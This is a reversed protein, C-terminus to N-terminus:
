KNKKNKRKSTTTTEEETVKETEVNQIEPELSLTSIGYMDINNVESAENTDAEVVNEPEKKTEETEQVTEETDEVSKPAISNAKVLYYQVQGAKVESNEFFNGGIVKNEVGEGDTWVTPKKYAETTNIVEGEIYLTSPNTALSGKSVEIGGFSNGSVDINTVTATAGNVLLGANGGTFKVNNLVYGQGNYVQTAYTSTWGDTGQSEVTLDNVTSPQLFVLNQGTLTFALKHGNGNFTVKNSFTIIEGINEIDAMLNVTKITSDGMVKKLDDLNSVEAISMEEKLNPNVTFNINIITPRVSNDSAGFIIQRNEQNQDGTLWLIFQNENTAGWKQAEAANTENSDFSYGKLAVVKDRSIGLDVLLGYWTNKMGVSNVFANLPSTAVVNITNDTNTITILDMNKYYDETNDGGTTKTASTIKLYSRSDAAPATYEYSELATVTTELASDAAESNEFVAKVTKGNGLTYAVAKDNVSDKQLGDISLKNIYYNEEIEIYDDKAIAEFAAEAEAETNYKESVKGLIGFGYEIRTKDYKPNEITEVRMANLMYGDILQILGETDIAQYAAYMGELTDFKEVIKKRNALVYEIAQKDSNLKIYLLSINNVLIDNGLKTFVM